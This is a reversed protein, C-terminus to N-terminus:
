RLHFSYSVGGSVIPYTKLPNLDSTWKAEQATLNSQIAVAIPNAGVNYTVAPQFTGNILVRRSRLHM